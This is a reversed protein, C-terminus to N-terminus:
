YLVGSLNVLITHAKMVNSTVFLQFGYALLRNPLGLATGDRGEPYPAAM